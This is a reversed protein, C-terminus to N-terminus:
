LFWKKAVLWGCFFIIIFSIFAFIAPNLNDLSSKSGAYTAVIAYPIISFLWSTIFKAFPMRTLGAMCSCIEPLVPVARSFLIIIFGHRLFAERAERIKVEDKVLFKLIKSGYRFSLGYGMCGSIFLGTISSLAGLPAGLFYGSSVLLLITPVSLLLDACLLGIVILVVYFSSMLQAMELWVGIKEVTIFGFAKFVIFISFFLLTLSCMMKFLTKM